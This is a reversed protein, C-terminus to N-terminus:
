ASLLISLVCPSTKPIKELLLTSCQSLIAPLTIMRDSSLPYKQLLQIFVPIIWCPCIGREWRPILTSFFALHVTLLETSYTVALFFWWVLYSHSSCFTQWSNPGRASACCSLFARIQALSIQGLSFFYFSVSLSHQVWFRRGEEWAPVGSQRECLMAEMIQSPIICCISQITLSFSLIGENCQESAVIWTVVDSVATTVCSM